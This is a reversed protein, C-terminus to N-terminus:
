SFFFGKIANLFGFVEQGFCHKFREVISKDVQVNIVTRDNGASGRRFVYFSREFVFLCFCDSNNIFAGAFVV